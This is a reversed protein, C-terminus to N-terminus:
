RCLFFGLIPWIATHYARNLYHSFLWVLVLTLRPLMLALILLLCPM